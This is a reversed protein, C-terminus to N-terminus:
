VATVLLVVGFLAFLGATIWRLTAAPLRNGVTRGIIVGVMGAAVIGAGAGLWVAVASERAAMTATALMTKDGLEAVVMAVAVTSVVGLWTGARPSIAEDDDGGDDGMLAVVAFGLFLLGGGIAVVRDPLADGVVGGLAASATTTILYAIVVGTIVPALRHRAALGLAVLQTKDGLEALFVVAFATVVTGM